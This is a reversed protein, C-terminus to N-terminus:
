ESDAPISGAVSDPFLRVVRLGNADAMAISMAPTNHHAFVAGEILASSEGCDEPLRALSHRCATELNLGSYRM